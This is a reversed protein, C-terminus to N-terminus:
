AKKWTKKRLKGWSNSRTKHFTTKAVLLGVSFRMLLALTRVKKRDVDMFKQKFHGSKLEYHTKRIKM